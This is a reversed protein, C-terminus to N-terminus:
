LIGSLGTLRAQNSTPVCLGRSCKANGPGENASSRLVTHPFGELGGPRLALLSRTKRPSFVSVSVAARPRTASAWLWSGAGLVGGEKEQLPPAPFGEWRRLPQPVPLSWVCMESHLPLVGSYSPLKPSAVVYFFSLDVSNGCMSLVLKCCTLSPRSGLGRWTWLGLDPCSEAGPLLSLGPPTWPPPALPVACSGSAPPELEKLTLGPHLTPTHDNKPNLHRLRSLFATGLGPGPAGEGSGM